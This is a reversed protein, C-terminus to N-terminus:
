ALNDEGGKKKKNKVQRTGKDAWFLRLRVAVCARQKNNKKINEVTFSFLACCLVTPCLLARRDCEGQIKGM